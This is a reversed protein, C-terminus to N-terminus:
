FCRGNSALRTYLRLRNSRGSKGAKEKHVIFVIDLRFGPSVCSTVIGLLLVGMVLVHRGVPKGRRCAGRAGHVIHEFSISALLCLRLLNDRWKSCLRYTFGMRRGTSM